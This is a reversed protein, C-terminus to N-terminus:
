QYEDLFRLIREMFNVRYSCYEAISLSYKSVCLSRFNALEDFYKNKRFTMLSRIITHMRAFDSNQYNESYIVNEWQADPRTVVFILAKLNFSLGEISVYLEEELARSKIFLQQKKSLGIGHVNILESLTLCVRDLHNSPLFFGYECFLKQNDHPGYSIFIQQHKKYPILTTLKYVLSDGVRMMGAETNGESSHNFMDLFPCLALCPEDSLFSSLDLLTRQTIVDPQVYVARTNVMAYGWTYANLTIVRRLLEGCCLCTWNSDISKEVREWSREFLRKRERVPVIFDCPIASLETENCLWPLNPPEGPLTGLYKRWRSKNNKHKELVLFMSLLDQAMFIKGRLINILESDLVNACTILLDYPVQMLTQNSSINTLSSVGRGTLLFNKLILKAENKWGFSAMWKKLSITEQVADLNANKLVEQKARLKRIRKTRGM